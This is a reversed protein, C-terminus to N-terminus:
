LILPNKLSAVVHQSYMMTMGDDHEVQVWGTPLLAIETIKAWSDVVGSDGECRAYPRFDPLFKIKRGPRLSNAM